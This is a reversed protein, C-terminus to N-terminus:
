FGLHVGPLCLRWGWTALPIVFRAVSATAPIGLLGFTVVWGQFAGRRKAPFMESIYTMGVVTM